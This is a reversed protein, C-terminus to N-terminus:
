FNKRLRNLELWDEYWLLVHQPSKNQAGVYYFLKMEVM